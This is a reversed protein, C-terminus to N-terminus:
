SDAIGGTKRDSDAAPVSSKVRLSEVMHFLLPRPGVQGAADLARQLEIRARRELMVVEEKKSTLTDQWKRWRILNVDVLVTCPCFVILRAGM